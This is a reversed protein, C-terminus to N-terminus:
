EVVEEEDVTDEEGVGSGTADSKPSFTFSSVAKDFVESWYDTDQLDAEIYYILGDYYTVVFLKPQPDNLKVKKAKQEGWTTDLSLADKLDERSLIWDESSAVTKGSKLQPPDKAWIILSGPHDKHTVEVHAYNEQDEDHKNVVADDPYDFNFGLDDKWTLFNQPQASAQIQKDPPLPVASPRTKKQWLWISGAILVTATIIGM